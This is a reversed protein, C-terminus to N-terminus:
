KAVLAIFSATRKPNVRSPLDVIEVVGDAILAHLAYHSPSEIVLWGLPIHATAIEPRRDRKRWTRAHPSDILELVSARANQIETTSPAPVKM